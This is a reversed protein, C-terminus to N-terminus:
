HRKLLEYEFILWPLQNDNHGQMCFDSFDIKMFM